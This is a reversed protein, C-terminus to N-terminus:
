EPFDTLFHVGGSVTIVSFSIINEKEVVGEKVWKYKENCFGVDSVYSKRKTIVYSTPLELKLFLINKKFQFRVGRIISLNSLM